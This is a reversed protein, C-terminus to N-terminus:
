YSFKWRQVWILVSLLVAFIVAVGLLQNTCEADRVATAMVGVPLIYVLNCLDGCLHLFWIEEEDVWFVAETSHNWITSRINIAYNCPSYCSCYNQRNNSIRSLFIFETVWQVPRLTRELVRKGQQSDFSAETKRGSREM